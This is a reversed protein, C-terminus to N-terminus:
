TMKLKRESAIKDFKLRAYREYDVECLFKQSYKLRQTVTTIKWIGIRAYKSYTCYSIRPKVTSSFISLTYVNELTNHKKKGKLILLIFYWRM